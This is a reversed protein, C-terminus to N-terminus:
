DDRMTELLTTLSLKPASRIDDKRGKDDQRGPEIQKFNRPKENPYSGIDIMYASYMKGDSPACSTSREVLHLMRLDILERIIQMISPNKNTEENSVLFINTRKDDVVYQRVAELCSKLQEFEEASDSQFFSAKNPFHEIAVSTVEVKGVCDVKYSADVFLSLFDRPVGGSALCLQKFGNKNILDKIKLDSEISSIATKLLERMFSELDKFRDLTYDLDIEQIDHGIEMGYYSGDVQKYLNTRHRISAVKVFFTTDKALRHFFDIFHPQEKKNIFYFDDFVLFISKDHLIKGAEAVYKKIAPLKNKIRSLKDVLVGKKTEVEELKKSNSSVEVGLGAGNLGEVSAGSKIGGEESSSTKERIEQDFHDPLDLSKSLDNIENNIKNFLQKVKNRKYFRFNGIDKLAKNELEEFIKNFVHILVNPFSIGKYEELNIKLVIVDGAGEKLSNLLSTKGSGRRGYIVHNQKNLLRSKYNRPDVFNIGFDESARLNEEIFSILNRKDTQM